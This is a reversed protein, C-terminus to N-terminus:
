EETDEADAGAELNRSKKLEQGLKRLHHLTTHFYLGFLSKGVWTAKTMTNMVAITVRVLVPALVVINCCQHWSSAEDTRM